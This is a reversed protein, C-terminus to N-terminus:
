RPPALPYLKAAIFGSEVMRQRGHLDRVNQLSLPRTTKRVWADVEEVSLAAFDRAGAHGGAFVLFVIMKTAWEPRKKEAKSQKLGRSLLDHYTPDKFERLFDWASPAVEALVGPIWKTSDPPVPAFTVLRLLAHGAMASWGGQLLAQRGCRIAEKLTPTAYLLCGAVILPDGRFDRELLDLLQAETLANTATVMAGAMYSERSVKAKLAALLDDATIGHDVVVKKLAKEFVQWDEDSVPMEYNSFLERVAEKIRKPM